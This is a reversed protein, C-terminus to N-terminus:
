ATRAGDALAKVAQYDVKGSGLLPLEAVTVISRPLMLETLGRGQLHVGLAHREAGAQTTVLVVREGKVPDPQSVAAHQAEPWVLSAEHEVGGLSVMEGAIKAFRRARGLITVYGYADLAVIDGTDYWGGPPPELVAPREPRYYGLMVNPGQVVLRGGQAIGEVPELRYRVAPLLRGVSGPKNQMATNVAIVPACETVGYGELIRTGFKEGYVRRTEDKVREAGAFIYRLAYFDYPHAARAYGNLFTDTGFMITAGTEYVLEPIARYHLPSPYLFTKVGALVPLILGGLLGFSHFVPLANFLLDRPTFDVRAGVQLRNANLNQHSLVVGKPTGESGSTFLITAPDDATAPPMPLLRRPLRSAVLAVLKDRTTLAARVDELYVLTAVAGIAEIAEDLKAAAVFRRSTLVTKLAATRCAAAMTSPGASFNLMAPVRGQSLLAFYTVACGNANPLLVGVAEGPATTRAVARGLALAGMVLRNFSLPKREQDELIASRGGHVARADLLAQWLTRRWDNTEFMMETMIDLMQAGVVRRRERGGLEPAVHFQRPELIDITIKPFLRWRVVHSLKSFLSYQAGEIRVPLIVAGARDAVLGPGEYIKMLGGTISQRGEPFIILPMGNAVAEILAKVALPKSTDVPLVRILKSFWRVYWLRAAEADAAFRPEGPLFAALLPADLGSIHNAVVVVRGGAKAMNDLGRVDVRYLLRFVRAALRKILPPPLLFLSLGAAVLGGLANWLFLGALSLGLARALVGIVLAGVIGLAAVCAAAAHRQGGGAQAPAGVLGLLPTAFLGLAVASLLSDILLRWAAATGLLASLSLPQVAAPPLAGTAAALDLGILAMALAATPAWVPSLQDKVLRLAAAAGLGAGLCLTAIFALAALHDGGLAQRALQPTWAVLVAMALGCWGLALITAWVGGDEAVRNVLVFPHWPAAPAAPAAPSSPPASRHLLLWAALAPVVLTAGLIASGGPLALRLQPAAAGLGLAVFCSAVLLALPALRRAPPTLDALLVLAAPVLLALTAGGLPLALWVLVPQDGVMGASAVLGTLVLAAGARGLMPTTRARETFTAALAPLLIVPLALLAAAFLDRLGIEGAFIGAAGSRWQLAALTAALVYALAAVGGILTLCPRWPGTVGAVSETM